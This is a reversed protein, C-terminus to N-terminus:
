KSRWATKELALRALEAVTYPKLEDNEFVECEDNDGSEALKRLAPTAGLDPGLRGLAWAAYGRCLSDPDLLGKVLWPREKEVIDPRSEALRGIAWYCSRRLADNDCYNDAMGLDMIYSLLIHAYERAMFPSQAVTEGFADPIGWGINGSDENMHWMFRRMINRAAEPNKEAIRAITLGLAKAARHMLGPELPLCAILAGVNAIGGDAIEYLHNTWDPSRLLLRLRKKTSLLGSM